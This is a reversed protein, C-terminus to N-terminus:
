RERRGAVFEQLWTLATELPAPTPPMKFAYASISTLPGSIKRDLAIKACRIVDIMVGAAAPGEIVNLRIDITFPAHGFHRGKIWFYSTRSNEMFDVYDSSGAVLPFDYPVVSAVSAKKISRKIEARRRELANLSETGGGIDLQYSEDVLIGREVLMKLITKHLVTSGIQDMLDDGALPLKAEEFRRQWPKTSAIGSPTANVYGCGAEIAQEAYWESAKMAGTPLFNVLIKAGSEKLVKRVSSVATRDLLVMDKVSEGVGDLLEGKQVQVGLEPVKSFKLTNNPDSFIAKSLDKGVKRADVDFAAVFKIDGAKWGGLDVNLLGIEKEPKLEGYFHVGQVLASCCNGVGVVAVKISGLCHM